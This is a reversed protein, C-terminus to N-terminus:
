RELIRESGGAGGDYGTGDRLPAVEIAVDEERDQHRPDDVGDVGVPGPTSAPESLRLSRM